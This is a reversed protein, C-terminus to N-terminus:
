ADYYAGDFDDLYKRLALFFLSNNQRNATDFEIGVAHRGDSSDGRESWKIVGNISLQFDDSNYKLVIQDGAPLAEQLELGVGSISVDRIHQIEYVKDGCHLFFFNNHNEITLGSRSSRRKDKLEAQTTMSASGGTQRNTVGTRGRQQRLYRTDEPAISGAM